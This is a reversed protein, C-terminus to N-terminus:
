LEILSSKAKSEEISVFVFFLLYILYLEMVMYFRQEDEYVEYVKVINTHELTLLLAMERMLQSTHEEGEKETVATTHSAFVSIFFVGKTAYLQGSENHSTEYVVSHAGSCTLDFVCLTRQTKPFSPVRRGIEDEITYVDFFGSKIVKKLEEEEM